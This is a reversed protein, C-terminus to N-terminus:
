IIKHPNLRPEKGTSDAAALYGTFPTIRCHGIADTDQKKVSFKDGLLLTLYSKKEFRLRMVFTFDFIKMTCLWASSTIGILCTWSRKSLYVETFLGAFM